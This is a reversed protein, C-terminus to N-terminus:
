CSHCTKVNRNSKLLGFTNPNIGAIQKQLEPLEQFSLTGMKKSRRLQHLKKVFEAKLNYIIDRTKDEDYNPQRKHFEKLNKMAQNTMTDVLDNELDEWKTDMRIPKPEKFYSVDNYQPLM